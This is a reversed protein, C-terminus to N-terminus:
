QMGGSVAAHDNNWMQALKRQQVTDLPYTNNDSCILDSQLYWSVHGDCFLVNAGGRHLSGPHEDPNGPDINYDWQLIGKTDAIAICDEAVRVRSAKIMIGPLNGGLGRDGFAGVYGWDNYGYSFPTTIPNDPNLLPENPKYGYGTQDANARTAHPNISWDYQWKSGPEQAPCYFVDQNGNLYLRLRPPWIAFATGDTNNGWCAPYYKWDNVYMGLAQGMQRLNSSCQAQKAQQRARNLVPLLVAILVAIIGIVVLLEVLTFARTRRM